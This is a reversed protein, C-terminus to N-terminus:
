LESHVSSFNSTASRACDAPRAALALVLGQTDCHCSSHGLLMHGSSQHAARSHGTGTAQGPADHEGFAPSKIWSISLRCVPFDRTASRSSVGTGTNKSQTAAVTLRKDRSTMLSNCLFQRDCSYLIDNSGRFIMGILIKMKRLDGSSVGKTFFDAEDAEQKESPVYDVEIRNNFYEIANVEKLLRNFWVRSKAAESTATYEVEISSLAVCKQLKTRWLVHGGSFKMLIGNTFRRSTKNGAHNALSSHANTPKDQVRSTVNVAYALDTRIGAVLYNLSVVIERFNKVNEALPSNAPTWGPEIPLSILKCAVMAFKRLVMEDYASQNIEM